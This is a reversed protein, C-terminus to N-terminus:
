AAERVYRLFVNELTPQRRELRHLDWRGAVARAIAAEVGEHADVHCEVTLVGALGSDARIDVSRVGDVALLAERLPAAEATVQLAVQNTEEVARQLGSPSDIALLRGHNIIAVRRCILTVEALIHTSLLVAHEAGISRIVERTEHIQGPDLGATPEDLLLVQPDGLLAQALGLRQRYGKSLKFIEDDLVAELHCASAVREIERRRSARPIAKAKAVFRLYASVDLTDYLPPREPLYGILGAAEVNDIAMDRGAVMVRGATAATFGAIMRMTTTKGAGNPGLFGVIEGKAVEFSLDHIVTRTGYRKSVSELSIVASASM